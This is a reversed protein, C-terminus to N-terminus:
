RRRYRHNPRRHSARDGHLQGTATGLTHLREEEEMLKRALAESPDMEEEEEEEEEEESTRTEEEETEEVGTRERGGRGRRGRRFTNTGLPSGEDRSSPSVARTSSKSNTNGDEM